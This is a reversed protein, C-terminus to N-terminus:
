CVHWAATSCMALRGRAVLAARVNWANRARLWIYRTHACPFLGLLSRKAREVLCARLAHHLIAKLEYHELLAPMRTGHKSCHLMRLRVATVTLTNECM